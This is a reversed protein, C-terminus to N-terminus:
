GASQMTAIHNRVLQIHLRADYATQRYAGPLRLQALKTDLQALREDMMALEEPLGGSPLTEIRSLEEEINRIEPYHQWVRWRMVYAYLMPVSRLLPLVIFLIPLLLLFMRNVQAAMWYPLWDHWASPGTLILQRAANNVVMGAGEVSPFSGPDTIVDRAGHLEIAAMTLRNILAPHLDEHVALRAELALLKAPAFPIVPMLSIAGAPITVTNAYELRRSIADVHDLSLHHIETHMFAEKLYPANIQSVFVAMDIEHRALAEVSESYSLGVHINADPAIGLAQEFDAFAAATGSGLQGKSIRLNNWRAPNASVLADQHTLFIMPEFFIAGIAEVADGTLPVDIGGQLIAVDVEGAAILEANEASGATERIILDIGDRALIRQYNRAITVYAGDGPGAAVILKDPPHLRLVFMILTVLVAAFVAIAGIRVWRVNSPESM